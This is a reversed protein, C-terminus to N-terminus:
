RAQVAHAFTGGQVKVLATRESLQVRKQLKRFNETLAFTRNPRRPRRRQMEQNKKKQPDM